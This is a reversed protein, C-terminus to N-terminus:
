HAAVQLSDAAGVAELTGPGAWEIPLRDDSNQLLAWMSLAALLFALTVTSRAAAAM